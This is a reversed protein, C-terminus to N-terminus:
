ALSDMIQNKPIHVTGVGHSSTLFRWKSWYSVELSWEREYSLVPWPCGRGGDSGVLRYWNKNVCLARVLLQCKTRAACVCM